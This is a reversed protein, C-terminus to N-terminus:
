ALTIVRLERVRPVYTQNTSTLVFKIRYAKFSPLNNATFAYEKYPVSTFGEADSLTTYSDPKGNSDAVSIIEGKANLNDYGPFPVFIPNFGQTDSIAYFARIDSYNNIHASLIIKISEAPSELVNEHSVYQCATPDETLTNVRNDTVYDSIANNVRNSTLIINMRQTDIIPTLRNDNSTMNLKVNFSRDGPFVQISSNSTENVRSAIIRPSTLYNSKNLTISEYGKDVFPVDSGTGSGDNLSTGSVTRIEATVNTGPVTINQIMPTIIEFPINQTARINFGGASKTQNAYLKPFSVGDTRATGSSATDLKINYSDFSLPNSVTVDDLLHTKNIRRLSVGGLEYKYVSTGVLYNKPNSGRTIGSISGASVTTYSIVESGILLYGANTTGVGVNEFTSFASSDDVSLSSTSDSAYPLTLKTPLVDPEIGSIVVRNTEHYMGHNKHDVVIHLGDSITEISTPLVNGGSSANFDTTIGLSNTYRLSKGAGVIFDGQVNNLVIENTSAISVVSFRVNRGVSINGITTIGLVDGIQYGTGSTRVTAAVAVGGEITVDATINKGTGTVNTLQTNNFTIGGSSPTYGIGANIISLAGTAIGANSIYNGTANSGQQSVTNGFQLGTSVGIVEQLTSGLGVRITRSNLNISDPMLKPIQGNGEGLIPNYVELTGSSAFEARYITFKLDEWQSPDWTSANQSKFLSGLYPQNSIFEDTLLDSEGVRSIFVRYKTSWSALCIAYDTGGELYVPAKFTFRTAVTGDQSTNIQSPDVVIESFPLIKQTPVGGQMTRIQFTMPIDMDDKTQFFIDCSTIFVGTDDLVQFSQALPDYWETVTNTITRATESIVRSGILQVGTTRRADRSEAEQKTEVRANRVSIINEQVTELTGSSAFSEEALTDCVNADNNSNNILTFTKTGTAFRPNTGINSNPIFFSGILTAGIDSILRLNAITAQAGSTQGVLIMGSEVYGSFEGQAQLSLSYTDVNLITSTSSYTSPIINGSQSALQITGPTGLFSELGTAGIQSLYPNNTFVSTPANYPGEKHNSQAVRFTIQPGETNTIPGLGTVRPSGIVTEGVQFSGLIMSIELLKPVCYKTVNVGDFFSYIQTLPKLKKSVFQVNRSRMFAIIERNVVRDGVSEMDFQETILTRTGTRNSIGTDITERFADEIVRDFVTENTQGRRTRSRGGPGQVNTNTSQRPDNITRRTSSDIVEQGTWITEWSNWLIPSLGTQPDLGITRQANAITEAYNGETNIIKAEIRATDVWSDSSPTLELTAQWFSILFPTISETRTAFSQKLWEVESYDLTIIDGSRKINNGEPQLFGLDETSSVGEVPGLQLDLSNTFHRPRLEKNPIDISNKVEISTEQPLITTFNDVFFGSKFRNLGNSDSIFLNQTNTELLSLTTYYELNKIRDELKKIDSMRYRKHNLFSLSASKTSYLYPPLVITGIELADDIPIPNELKESPEGSQIQFKGDKTLYIRDVRGVYFSFDTLISEDSALINAASNGSGDFSRGFFELPSRSNELVNYNSVRPRIDIIDTNRRGNIARIDNNYDFTDYSNKTTIDGDDSSEYYGNTFYIKLNKSPAKANTKRTIFGHDYFTSEQGSNFTYNNSIDKSPTELTTVVAQIKSEEFTITEGEKFSIQNGIVYTIQSDSIKETLFAISGSASGKIKEGIILDSTKGTPGTLSSLTAKPASANSTNTSEFIGLIKIVDPNNLSINEDQVRTGYPFNGSTLGDNLTTAGIGSGVLISKNVIIANVRNQRKVKAKPKSKTLTTVLTAGTDDSSLNKIQLVTSGSSLFFKDSTLVETVGNSRVLSYREEDFPLFVENTGAIAASSLQNGSINVNYSKRITLLAGTLDVNSINDKPMATYLTNDISDNLPTSLVQLDTVTLFQPTIPSFSVPLKGQAVGAVTTVGSVVISTSAVSVVRAFVPESLSPNDTTIGTFKVLSNPKVLTGPFLPNTSVITSNGTAAAYASITAVGVNFSTIQVTDASFTKDFGVNGLDPGGYVSKVNSIGFSTTAISIRTNEIGNFIFPENAVFEGSKEYVTLATGASVSSRLFGTAGSYKGKIHTPVNLTIPENITIHSFLQIDYLSIDWENINPNSSSYSGSELAFDYVRALGIEKGPSTLSNVGVRTDRLSVIYTNGVGVVPNGFVRNLKLTTGTTYNIGQNELTKTTRPKPADIFTTSITEIEYGKVFAKGPSIQYVLLEENALEGSYTFQGQEFIGNNGLGNNLSDKVTIDFPTITYDGSEAFTRRALEDAILNYQTNKVQSRLIGNNVTALEVFNSDNFDDIPKFFLSCTIKLRDAGPAAYNNFGKSNDTLTEDEDANIIEEQVRLGIRGTPANDYQDLLITEDQVNVFTGRVFYVGNSISFSSSTSNANVPIASAFSEGSPIFTNNLPGTIIDTDSALLEGDLFKKVEPDQVGSSIYSVYITLNGRDSNTSKLVKDIIATVGSTLGIIKRKLLQEIYFEVPVGLHTANLEVAYYSRSYATNGPIVKAGEKFFHQGFRDIQNQLISQLGTLERAQIPYGPKFLIKYYNDTQDFDDFYPSVNLNTQQAM